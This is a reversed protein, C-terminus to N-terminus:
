YSLSAVHLYDLSTSKDELYQLCELSVSSTDSEADENGSVSFSFLVVRYQTLAYKQQQLQLHLQQVLWIRWLCILVLLIVLGVFMDADSTVWDGCASARERSVSESRFFGGNAWVHEGCRVTGRAATLRDLCYSNWVQVSRWTIVRDANNNATVCSNTIHAATASPVQRHNCLDICTQSRVQLMPVARPKPAADSVHTLWRMRLAARYGAPSDNRRSSKPRCDEKPALQFNSWGNPAKRGIFRQNCSSFVPASRIDM